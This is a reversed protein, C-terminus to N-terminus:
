SNITNDFQSFVFRQKVGMIVSKVKVTTEVKRKHVTGEEPCGGWVNSGFLILNGVDSAIRVRGGFNCIRGRYDRDEMAVQSL